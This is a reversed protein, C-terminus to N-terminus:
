RGSGNTMGDMLAQSMTGILRARQGAVVNRADATERHPNTVQVGQLLGAPDYVNTM